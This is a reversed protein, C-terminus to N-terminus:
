QLCIGERSMDILCSQVSISSWFMPLTPQSDSHTLTAMSLLLYTKNSISLIEQVTYCTYTNIGHSHTSKIIYCPTHDMPDEYGSGSAIHIDTHVFCFFYNDCLIM